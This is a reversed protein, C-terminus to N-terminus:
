TGSANRADSRAAGTRTIVARSSGSPGLSTPAVCGWVVGRRGGKRNCGGGSFALVGLSAMTEMALRVPAGQRHRRRRRRDSGERIPEKSLLSSTRCRRCSRARSAPQDTPGATSAFRTPPRNSKITGLRKQGGRVRPGDVPADGPRQVKVETSGTSARVTVTDAVPLYALRGQLPPPTATATAATVAAVM